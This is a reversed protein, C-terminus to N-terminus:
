SPEQADPGHEQHGADGAAVLLRSSRRVRARRIYTSRWVDAARAKVLRLVRPCQRGPDRHRVDLGPIRVSLCHDQEVSVRIGAAREEPNELSQGGVARRQMQEREVLAAVAGGRHGGDALTRCCGLSAKVRRQHRLIDDGEHISQIERARVDYTVRHTTQDCLLERERVGGAHLAQHQDACEDVALVRREVFKENGQDLARVRARALPPAHELAAPRVEPPRDVGVVQGRRICVGLRPFEHGRDPHRIGRGIGREKRLDNRLGGGGPETGPDARHARLVCEIGAMSQGIERHRREHDPCRLIGQKWLLLLLEDPRCQIVGDVAAVEVVVVVLGVALNRQRRGAELLGVDAM